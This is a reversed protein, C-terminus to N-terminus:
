ALVKRIFRFEIKQGFREFHRLEQFQHAIAEILGGKDSASGSRTQFFGPARSHGAAPGAAAYATNMRQPQNRQPVCGREM